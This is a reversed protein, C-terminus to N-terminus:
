NKNKIAPALFYVNRNNILDRKRSVQGTIGTLLAIKRSGEGENTTSIM